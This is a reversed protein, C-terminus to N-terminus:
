VKTMRKERQVNALEVKRLRVNIELANIDDTINRIEDRHKRRLTMLTAIKKELRVVKKDTEM